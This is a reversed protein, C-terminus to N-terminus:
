KDQLYNGMMDHCVLVKRRTIMDNKILIKGRNKLDDYSENLYRIQQGRTKLPIIFNKWSIGKSRIDFELLQQNTEIPHAQLQYEVSFM